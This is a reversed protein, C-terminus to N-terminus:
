NRFEEVEDITPMAKQAGLATTSLAAVANAFMVAEVIDKGEKLSYALGANFSDGAATPDIAEVEYGPIHNFKKKEIIYAGKKGAKAIVTRAGKALLRDAAKKFDNETNLKIDSLTELETENPTIIDIYNYIEDSFHRAPAPDFIITKEKSALKKMIYKNTEAPIEQQFLFIDNDVIQGWQEKIYDIDVLGNTGSHVILINESEQNVCVIALGPYKDKEIRVTDCKVSNEQLKEKYHHGRLKDGLKGVMRVDAGLKGLAYAQNAGKGGETIDFDLANVTEGIRPFEKVPAVLDINLSGIVCIRTV